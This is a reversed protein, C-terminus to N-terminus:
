GGGLLRRLFLPAFARVEWSTEVLSSTRRFQAAYHLMAVRGALDFVEELRRASWRVLPGRRTWPGLYADRLRRAADPVHILADTYHLSLVLLAPSFFPHAVVADEWDIVVSSGEAAIINAAWLDGHEISSPVGHGALERCLAELDPRRRHLAAVETDSLGDALAPQLLAADDILPGVEAELEPLSQRRCGLAALEDAGELWDIQMDAVPSAAAEWRALDGVEMLDRGATARMLLWHRDPEIAIVDPTSAPHREALRKTLPAEHAGSAPRAKFYFRGGATELALVQSFEWVRVQEVSSVRPWGRRDLQEAVWALAEDRWGPLIWGPAARAAVAKRAGRIWAEVRQWGDPDPGLVAPATATTMWRGSGDAPGAGGHAELVQLHRRPGGDAGPEDALCRLVSTDLGLSARVARNLDAIDASRQEPLEIRPLRWGDRETLLLVEPAGSGRRRVIALSHESQGANDM